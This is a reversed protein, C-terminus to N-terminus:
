IWHSCLMPHLSCTGGKEHLGLPGFYANAELLELTKANTDGSTMIAQPVHLSKTVQGTCDVRLPPSNGILSVGIVQIFLSSNLWSVVM